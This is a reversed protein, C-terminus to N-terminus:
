IILRFQCTKEIRFLGHSVRKHNSVHRLWPTTCYTQRPFAPSCCFSRSNFVFFLFFLFKFSLADLEGELIGGETTSCLLSGPDLDCAPRGPSRRPTPWTWSRAPPRRSDLLSAASFYHSYAWFPILRADFMLLNTEFLCCCPYMSSSLEELQPSLSCWLCALTLTLAVLQWRTAMLPFAVRHHYIWRPM